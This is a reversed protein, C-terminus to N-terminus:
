DKLRAISSECVEGQGVMVPNAESYQQQLDSLAKNPEVLSQSSRSDSSRDQANVVLPSALHFMVCTIVSVLHVNM